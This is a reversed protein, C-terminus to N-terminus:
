WYSAGLLSLHGSGARDDTWSFTSSSTSRQFWVHALQHGGAPAAGWRATRRHGRDSPSSARARWSGRRRRRRGPSSRSTSASSRHRGVSVAGREGGRPPQGVPHRHQHPGVGARGPGGGRRRTPRKGAADGRRPASTRAPATSNSWSARISSRTRLSRAHPNDPLVPCIGRKRHTIPSSVLARRPPDPSRLAQQLLQVLDDREFFAILRVPGAQLRQEGLV